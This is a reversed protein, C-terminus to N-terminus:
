YGSCFQFHMPDRLRGPWDGGWIFGHAIFVDVVPEPMDGNTGQTNSEANLDVAIGWSHPSVKGSHRQTTFEYCCSFSKIETALGKDYLEEFVAQFVETLKTHCRIRSIKKNPYWSLPIEFPLECFGIMDSEWKWYVTGDERIYDYICGFEHIIEDLGHPTQIRTEGAAPSVDLPKGTLEMYSPIIIHQNSRISKPDLIGNYQALQRMLRGDGYFAEAIRDLSDDNQIVYSYSM